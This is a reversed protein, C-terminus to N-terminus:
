WRLIRDQERGYGKLEIRDEFVRVLSYATQDPTEVMGKINLYHVGKRQEYQGAHNHGNFYARVHKYQDLIELLEDANWLTHADDPFAPYHSFIVVSEKAQKAQELRNQLWQLQKKSLGGNYPKASQRGIEQLKQLQAQAAAYHRSGKSAQLSVDNGDLVIFRFTGISFDYYRKKLGLRGPVKRIQKEAVDFDHNGLVQYLPAKLSKQLLLLTDFSEYHRDIFDGLHIAFALDQQNYASIAEGFKSISNRYYRSGATPCDCYQVDSFLGFSFLPSDQQRFSAPLFNLLGSLFLFPFFLVAKM